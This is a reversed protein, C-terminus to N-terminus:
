ENDRYGDLCDSEGNDGRAYSASFVRSRPIKQTKGRRASNPVYYLFSDDWELVRINMYRLQGNDDELMIRVPKQNDVSYVFFREDIM